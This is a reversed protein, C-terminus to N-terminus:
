SITCASEGKSSSCEMFPGMCLGMPTNEAEAFEETVAGTGGNSSRRNPAGNKDPVNDPSTRNLEHIPHNGHGHGSMNMIGGVGRNRAESSKPYTKVLDGNENISAGPTVPIAYVGDAELGLKRAQERAHLVREAVKQFLLNVNEDNRASTDIFIGNVSQSLEKAELPSVFSGELTPEELLDSKTAAIAIVINGAQIIPSLEELWDKVCEFSAPNSVDYCVVAAAATKYYMPAMKRFQSQGATDWIQVKCTIGTDTQVRKTIFFAGVTPSRSNERYYGEAFRLVLSTKGVNTDGLM